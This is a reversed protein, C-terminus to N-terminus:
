GTMGRLDPGLGAWSGWLPVDLWVALRLGNLHTTPEDSAVMTAIFASMEDDVIARCAHCSALLWALPLGHVADNPTGSFLFRLIERTLSRTIQPSPDASRLTRALFQLVGGRGEAARRRREGLMEEYIRQAGASSTNDKIQVALEGVIEWQSRAAHPAITRALREPTDSDYALQSAAFYELFTRHTFAYLRQGTATTGADSFVWMRGRCFEVFERAADKAGDEPEFGRGRLFATTEAVLERETVATRAENRCFLWWALHRM